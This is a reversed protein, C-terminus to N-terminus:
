ENDAGWQWNLADRAEQPGKNGLAPKKRPATPGFIAEMLSPAALTREAASSRNQAPTAAQVPAPANRGAQALSRIDLVFNDGPSKSSKAFGSVSRFMYRGDAVWVMQMGQLQGTLLRRGGWMPMDDGAAAVIQPGTARAVTRDVDGQTMGRPLVMPTDGRTRGIGGTGDPAAGLADRVSQGWLASDYTSVGGRVARAAYLGRAVHMVGERMKGDMMQLAPDVDATMAQRMRKGANEDILQPNAKLQDWGDLTDRVHLRGANANRMSSIDALVAYQPKEPAIQRLFAKGAGGGVGSFTAIIDAKDTASGSEFQRRLPEVERASLVQLEGGYRSQAAKGDRYRTRLSAPDNLDIPSVRGGNASWLGLVDNQVRAANARELAELRGHAAVMEPKERWKPDGQELERTAAAIEAPSSNGYISNVNSVAVGNRLDHALDGEGAAEAKGAMARLTEPAVSVGARLDELTTRASARFDSVQDKAASEARQRIKGLATAAASPDLFAAFRGSNLAELAGAYDGAVMRGDLWASALDGKLQQAVKPERAGLENAKIAIDLQAEADDFDKMSGSSGLAVMKNQLITAVGGTAAALTEARRARVFSDTQGRAEAKDRAAAVRYKSRLEPDTIGDLFTTDADDHLKEVAGMLDDGFKYNQQLDARQAARDVELTLFQEQLVVDQVQRDREVERQRIRFESDDVARQTEAGQQAVQGMTRGIVSVVQSGVSPSVRREGARVVSNPVRSSFTPPLAM